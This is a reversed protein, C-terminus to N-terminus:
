DILVRDGSALDVAILRHQDKVYITQPDSLLVADQPWVFADGEGRAAGSLETRMGSVTDIGILSRTIISSALIESGGGSLAIGGPIEPLPGSGRTSGSVLLRQGYSNNAPQLDVRYLDGKNNLQFLYNGAVAMAVMLDSGALGNTVKTVVATVPNLLYLAGAADGLVYRSGDPNVAVRTLAQLDKSDGAYVPTLETENLSLPTNDSRLISIRTVTNIPAFGTPFGTSGSPPVTPLVVSRKLSLHQNRVADYALTRGRGYFYREGAPDEIPSLLGPLVLNTLPPFRVPLTGKLISVNDRPLNYLRADDYLEFTLLSQAHEAAAFTDLSQFNRASLNGSLVRTYQTAPDYALMRNAIGDVVIYRDGTADYEIDRIEIVQLLSEQGNFLQTATNTALNIAYLNLRDAVILLNRKTDHAIALYGAIERPAGADSDPFLFGPLRQVTASAEDFVVTVKGTKLDVAGIKRETRSVVLLRANTEDVILGNVGRPSIAAFGSGDGPYHVVPLTAISKTIGTQQNFSFIRGSIADGIYVDRTGEHYKVTGLNYYNFADQSAPPLFPELVPNSSIKLSALRVQDQDSIFVQATQKDLALDTPASLITRLPQAQEPVLSRVGTDLNVKFIRQLMRDVVYAQRNASDLTLGELDVWQPETNITYDKADAVKGDVKLALTMQKSIPIDSLLWRGDPQVKTSFPENGPASIEVTANGPTQTSSVSGRFTLTEGTFAIKTLPPFDVKLNHEGSYASLLNIGGFSLFIKGNICYSASVQFTQPKSIKGTFIKVHHRAALTVNSAFPAPTSRNFPEFKGQENISFSRTSSSVPRSISTGKAIDTGVSLYVDAKQGIHEPLPQMDAYVEVTEGVLATSFFSKGGDQSFGGQLSWYGPSLVSDFCGAIATAPSVAILFCACLKKSVGSTGTM